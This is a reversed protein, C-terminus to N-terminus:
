TEMLFYCRSHSFSHRLTLETHVHALTSKTGFNSGGGGGGWGGLPTIIQLLLLNDM